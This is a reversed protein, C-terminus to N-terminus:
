RPAVSKKGSRSAAPVRRPAPQGANGELTADRPQAASPEFNGAFGVPDFDGFEGAVPYPGALLEDSQGAMLGQSFGAGAAGAGGQGVLGNMGALGGGGVAGLPTTFNQFGNITNFFPSVSLRVYRRDASVVPTVTMTAGNPVFGVVPEYAIAQGYAASGFGRGVLAILAVALVVARRKLVTM